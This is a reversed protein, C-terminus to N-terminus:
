NKEKKGHARRSARQRPQKERVLHLPNISVQPSIGTLWGERDLARIVRILTKVTAGKGGELHRLASESIGARECLRQRSLNKQLRLTKLNEGLATELEQPTFINDIATEKLVNLCM